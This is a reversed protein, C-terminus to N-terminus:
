PRVNVKRVRDGFASTCRGDGVLQLIGPGDVVAVGSLLTVGHPGLVAPALPTSPGVLAIERCGAAAELLLDIGGFILATSTIIAVDCQPLENYADEASLVGPLRDANREFIVLERARKEIPAVFPGFYGVMGVRDQFGISLVHLLDAEYYGGGKQNVLANAVALGVTRELGDDSALYPLVESTSRGTPVRHAPLSPAAGTNSERYTFALGVNGDDLVVATYRAGMCMERVHRGPVTSVLYDRLEEAIM